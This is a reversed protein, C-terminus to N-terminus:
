RGASRARRPKSSRSRRKATAPALGHMAAYGDLLMALGREFRDENPVNAGYEIFVDVPERDGILATLQPYHGLALFEKTLVNLVSATQKEVPVHEHNRMVSGFVFDDVLALIEHRAAEPLPLTSVAELSLEIHRLVNPGVLRNEDMEHLAWPHRMFTSWTARAIMSVAARWGAPLPQSKAVVEAMLADDMLALLDHKTRVYYYLTMTGAGLTEAIRRMSLADFGEKDAIALAAAAIQDRTFRPKRSGPAPEAWIPLTSM